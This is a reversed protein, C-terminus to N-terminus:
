KARRRYRRRDRATADRATIVRVRGRRHTFVVFLLRGTSTTGLVARRREASIQYVPAPVRRPDLLAEEAEEPSISHEAIHDLNGEDWDFV